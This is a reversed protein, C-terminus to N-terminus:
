GTVERILEASLEGQLMEVLSGDEALFYVAPTTVFRQLSDLEQVREADEHVDIREVPLPHITVVEQLAAWSAAVRAKTCSCGEAQGVFVVHHVAARAVPAEVAAPPSAEATPPTPEAETTCGVLLLFVLSRLSM